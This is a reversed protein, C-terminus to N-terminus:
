VKNWDVFSSKLINKTLLLLVLWCCSSFCFFSIRVTSNETHNSALLHQWIGTYPWPEFSYIHFHSILWPAVVIVIVAPLFIQRGLSGYVHHRCDAFKWWSWLASFAVEVLSYLWTQKAKHTERMYTFRSKVWAMCSTNDACLLLHLLALHEKEEHHSYRMLVTLM